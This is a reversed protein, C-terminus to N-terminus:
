SYYVKRGSLTFATTSTTGSINEVDIRLDQNRRILLKSQEMFPFDGSGWESNVRIRQESLFKQNAIDFFQYFLIEGGDQSVTRKLGEFHADDTVRFIPASPGSLTSNAPIVVDAETTLFFPQSLQKYAGYEMMKIQIYDPAEAHYYRSGFFLLRLNAAGVGSNTLEVVLERQGNSVDMYYSDPFYFPNEADGTITALSIPRNMMFRRSGPDFINITITNTPVVNTFISMIYYIEFHGQTDVVFQLRSSGGAPVTIASNDVDQLWFPRIYRKLPNIIVRKEEKMLLPFM